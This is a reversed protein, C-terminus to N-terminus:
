RPLRRRARQLALFGRGKLTMPVLCDYETRPSGGFEEKFRNIGRAGPSSEDAFVGGFDFVQLGRRQFELIDQWHLWRNLRGIGARGASDEGRFLSASHLQRARGSAVVYSHWVLPEDGNAAYSLALRDQAAAERLWTRAVAAVGSSAAFRDYFTCFADLVDEEPRDLFTFLSGERAARRIQRQPEKKVASLLTEESERLDFVLTHFETCRSGPVPHPRQRLILIDPTPTEPEEDFWVEGYEVIKGRIRIMRRGDM